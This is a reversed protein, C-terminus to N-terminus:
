FCKSTEEIATYYSRGLQAKENASATIIWGLEASNGPHRNFLQSITLLDSSVYDDEDWLGPASQRNGSLTDIINRQYKRDIYILMESNNNSLVSFQHAGCFEPFQYRCLKFGSTKSASNKLSQQKCHIQVTRSIKVITEPQGYRKNFLQKISQSIINDSHKESPPKSHTGSFAKSAPALTEPKRIQKAATTQRSAEGPKIYRINNNDGPEDQVKNPVPTTEELTHIESNLPASAGVPRYDADDFKTNISCSSLHLLTFLLIGTSFLSHRKYFPNM